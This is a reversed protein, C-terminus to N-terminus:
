KCPELTKVLEKDKDSFEKASRSAEDATKGSGAIISFIM